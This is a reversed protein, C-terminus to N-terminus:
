LKPLRRHIACGELEAGKDRGAAALERRDHEAVVDEADIRDMAGPAIRRRPPGARKGRGAADQFQELGPVHVKGHQLPHNGEDLLLAGLALAESRRAGPEGIQPRQRRHQARALDEIGRLIELLM